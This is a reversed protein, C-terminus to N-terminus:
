VTLQTAKRVLKLHCTKNDRKDSLTNQLTHWALPLLAVATSCNMDARHIVACLLAKKSEPSLIRYEDDIESFAQQDTTPTAALRKLLRDIM